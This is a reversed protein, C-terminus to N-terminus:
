QVILAKTALSPRGRKRKQGIPITKAAAPVMVMQLRIKMGLLHKCNRLKQFSPCSCRCKALDNSNIQVVWVGHAYKRFDEFNNWKLHKVKFARLVRQNIHQTASTSSTMYYIATGDAATEQLVKVNKVAWQYALTWSSLPVSPTM